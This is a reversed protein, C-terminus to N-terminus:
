VKAGGADGTDTETSRGRVIVSMLKYNLDPVFISIGPNLVSDQIGHKGVVKPDSGGFAAYDPSEGEQLSDGIITGSFDTPLSTLTPTSTTASGKYVEGRFFKYGTYGGSVDLFHCGISSMHKNQFMDARTQVVGDEVRTMPFAGGVWHVYMPSIAIKFGSATSKISSGDVTITASSAGAVADLIKFKTGISPNDSNTALNDEVVYAYAGIVNNAGSPGSTITPSLDLFPGATLNLTQSGAASTLNTVTFIGDGKMDLTRIASSNNTITTTNAGVNKNRDIDMVFVRPLWGSPIESTTTSPHNLLFFSREVMSTTASPVDNYASFGTDGWKLPWTGKKTSDFPTDHFETVRGTGFWLVVMKEESPNLIFLCSAYPDFSMSLDDLNARWDETLLNDLSRVDDLQGNNSIAKLGKSSVFYCLPGADSVADLGALGFGSHLDDIKLYVGERRIHYIRDRSFGIAFDGIRALKEIRNQFVDPTYKNNIPFLEPSKETLSSWRLEGINRVREAISGLVPATGAQPDAILLSGDLAVGSKGHPMETEYITKDLYVDQMCLALDELEYLGQALDWNTWTNTIVGMEHDIAHGVTNTLTYINSLHMISAGYTGGVDETKISRFIYIQDWMPLPSDDGAVDYYAVQIKAYGNSAAAPDGTTPFDTSSIKKIESLASRRGTVSNFLYYAFSYHGPELVQPETGTVAAADTEVISLRAIGGEPVTTISPTTDTDFAATQWLPAKGVNSDVVAHTYSPTVDPDYGVYFLRPLVGQILLVVFKGISVVDMPATASVAVSLNDGEHKSLLVTRWGTASDISPTATYDLYVAAYQGSPNKVRYVFGYGFEGERIHFQVPFFDTVVSNKTHTYGVNGALEGSFDQTINLERALGFGSSPSLGFRKSGDVGVVEHSTNSGVLGVRDIGKNESAEVTSYIWRKNREPM